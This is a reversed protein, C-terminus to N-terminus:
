PWICNPLRNFIDYSDFSLVVHEGPSPVYSSVGVPMLCEYCGRHLFAWFTQQSTNAELGNLSTIYQGMGPFDHSTFSFKDDKEAADLMIDYFPRKTTRVLMSASFEDDDNTLM